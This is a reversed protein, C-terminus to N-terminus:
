IGDVIQEAKKQPPNEREVQIMGLLVENPIKGAARASPLSKTKVNPSGSKIKGNKSKPFLDSVSDALADVAEGFVFGFAFGVAAGVLLSAPFTVAALACAAAGVAAYIAGKIVGNIFDALWSTHLLVDNEKA